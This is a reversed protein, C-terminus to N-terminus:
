ALSPGRAPLATRSVFQWLSPQPPTSSHEFLLPKNATREALAALLDTLWTDAHLDHAPVAPAALASLALGNELASCRACSDSPTPASSEMECCPYAVAQPFVTELTCANVAPLWALFLLAAIIPRLVRMPKSWSQLM